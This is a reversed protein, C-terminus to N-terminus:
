ILIPPRRKWPKHGTRPWCWTYDPKLLEALVNRNFREDDVVLLRPKNSDVPM